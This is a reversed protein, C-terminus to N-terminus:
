GARAAKSTEAKGLPTLMSISPMMSKLAEDQHAYNGKRARDRRKGTNAITESFYKGFEADIRKDIKQKM